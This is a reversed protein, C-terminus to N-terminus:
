VECDDQRQKKARMDLPRNFQVKKRLTATVAVSAAPVKVVDGGPVKAELAVSTNVNKQSYKADACCLRKKGAGTTGL